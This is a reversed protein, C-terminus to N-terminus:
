KSLWQNLLVQNGSLNGIVYSKSAKIALSENLIERKVGSRGIYDSHVFYNNTGDKVVFGVHYDLGLIFIEQEAQRSLYQELKEISNYREARGNTCLKEVIVSAAQQALKYRQLQVGMDRLTTTVFYGCAIDGKRPTDTHGNFDWTTGMWYHFISDNLMDFFYQRGAIPEQAYNAKQEKIRKQLHKYQKIHALTDFKVKLIPLSPALPPTQDPSNKCSLFVSLVILFYFRKM